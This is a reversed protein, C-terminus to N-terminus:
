PKVNRKGQTKTGTYKHKETKAHRLANQQGTEVNKTNRLKEIDIHMQTKKYKYKRIRTM